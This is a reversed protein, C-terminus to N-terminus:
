EGRQAQGCGDDGRGLGVRVVVMVMVVVVMVVVPVVVGPGVAREGRVGLRTRPHIVLTPATAGAVALPLARHAADIKALPTIWIGARLGPPADGLGRAEM